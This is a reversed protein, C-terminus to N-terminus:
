NNNTNHCIDVSVRATVRVHYLIQGIILHGCLWPLMIRLYDIWTDWEYGASDQLHAHRMYVLVM